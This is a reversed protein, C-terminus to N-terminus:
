PNVLLINTRAWPIASFVPIELHINIDSYFLPERMDVLKPKHSHLIRELIVADDNLGYTNSKNYIINVSLKSM